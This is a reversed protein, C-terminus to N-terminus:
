AIMLQNSQIGFQGRNQEHKKMKMKMKMTIRMHIKESNSNETQANTIEEPQKQNEGNKKRRQLFLNMIKKTEFEFQEVTISACEM